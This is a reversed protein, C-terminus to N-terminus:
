RLGISKAVDPIQGWEDDIVVLAPGTPLVGSINVPGLLRAM